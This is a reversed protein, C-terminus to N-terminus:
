NEVKKEEQRHRMRSSQEENRYELKTVRKANIDTWMELIRSPEKLFESTRKDEQGRTKYVYIKWETRM